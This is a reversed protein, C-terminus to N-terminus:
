IAQLDKNLSEQQEDVREISDGAATKIAQKTARDAFHRDMRLQSKAKGEFDKKDFMSTQLVIDPVGLPQSLESLASVVEEEDGRQGRCAVRDLRFGEKGGAVGQGAMPPCRMGDQEEESDDQNLFERM